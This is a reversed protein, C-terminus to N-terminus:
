GIDCGMFGSGWVATSDEFCYM